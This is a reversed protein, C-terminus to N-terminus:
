VEFVDGDHAVSVPYSLGRMMDLLEQEGKDHWPDGVHSFVLRGIPCARLIDLADAPRYHTVECICLDCPQTRAAQPFDSFNKSLDGTFIVRRKGAQFELAYSGVGGDLAPLHRTAEATVKLSADSYVEGPGYVAIDVGPVPWPLRLMRCWEEVARVAGQEPLFVTMRADPDGKKNYYQTLLSPLGGVHDGHMHTIFVAQLPRMEKGSRVMLDAASYGADVLYSRGDLEMITASHFRSATPNGHSTGLTTIRM